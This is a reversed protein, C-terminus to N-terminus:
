IIPAGDGTLKLPGTIEPRLGFASEVASYIRHVADETNIYFNM